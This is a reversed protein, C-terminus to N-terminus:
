KKKARQGLQGLTEPTIVTEAPSVQQPTKEAPELVYHRNRTDPIPVPIAEMVLDLPMLFWPPTRFREMVELRKYGPKELTFDYHWYWIFPITIPTAGYPQGRWLVEAGPPDSTINVRSRICGTLVAGLLLACALTAFLRCRTKLLSRMM